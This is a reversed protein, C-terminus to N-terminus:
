QRTLCTDRAVRWIYLYSFEMFCQFSLGNWLLQGKQSKEMMLNMVPQMFAVNQSARASMAKQKGFIHMIGSRAMSM